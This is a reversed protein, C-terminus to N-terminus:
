LVALCDYQKMINLKQQLLKTLEPIERNLNYEHINIVLIKYGAYLLHINRYSTKEDM